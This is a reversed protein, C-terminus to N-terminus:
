FDFIASLLAPLFTRPADTADTTPKERVATLNVRVNEFVCPCFCVHFDHLDNCDQNEQDNYITIQERMSNILQGANM